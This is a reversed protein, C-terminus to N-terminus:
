TSSTMSAEVIVEPQRYVRLMLSSLIVSVSSSAMALAGVVPSIQEKMLPFILGAALPIAATNYLFACFLNIKIRRYVTRGLDICTIVDRLDSRMLVVDAAELAVESGAGIAMGVDSAALAVVDNIGDGVMAVAWQQLSAEFRTQWPSLAVVRGDVAGIMVTKSDDEFCVTTQVRVSDRKQECQVLRRNGVMVAHGDVMCRLGLGPLAEVESPSSLQLGLVERAHAVVARGLPHESGCEASAILRLAERERDREAGPSDHEDLELPTQADIGSGLFIVDTLRPNGHTLTGTKDFVVVSVAHVSQLVRGGKILIGHQAGIGTGVLVATPTALGLACPCAIVLVTVAFIFAFLVRNQGPPIWEEPLVTFALLLWVAFTLASVLLVVPVFVASVRDAFEQISPKSAQAQEMLQAIQALTSRAGTRLVRVHLMGEQNVTGGIVEDGVQKCVPVSEGTLMGEDVSTRGETIIGDAPIRGGPVVKLLDGCQVLRVDIEEEDYLPCDSREPVGDGAAQEDSTQDREGVSRLLTASNAQLDLLNTIAQSTSAKALSELFRGLLIFTILLISTDFYLEPKFSPEILRDIVAGVSFLYAVSTGLAVLVDMTPSGHQLAIFAREYFPLGLWCQVVTALPLLVIAKLSLGPAVDQNIWQATSPIWDLLMGFVFAPVAFLFAVLFRNRYREIEATRVLSSRDMEEDCLTAGFGMTQVARVLDRLGTRDPDFQVQARGSVLSLSAASVGDVGLLAQEVKRVCSACHLGTVSIMVKSLHEAPDTEADQFTTAQASLQTACTWAYPCTMGQVTYSAHRLSAPGPGDHLPLAIYFGSPTDAQDQDRETPEAGALLAKGVDLAGDDNEAESSLSDEDFLAARESGSSKKKSRM